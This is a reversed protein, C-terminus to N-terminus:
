GEWARKSEEKLVTHARAPQGSCVSAWGSPLSPELTWATGMHQYAGDFPAQKKKKHLIYIYTYTCTCVHNNADIICFVPNMTVNTCSYLSSQDNM